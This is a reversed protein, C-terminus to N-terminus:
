IDKQQNNPKRSTDEPPNYWVFGTNGIFCQNQLEWFKYLQPNVLKEM